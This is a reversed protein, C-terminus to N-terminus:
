ERRHTTKVCTDSHCGPTFACGCPSLVTNEPEDCLAAPATSDNAQHRSFKNCRDRQTVIGAQIGSSPTVELAYPSGMGDAYPSNQVYHESPPVLSQIDSNECVGGFTQSALLNPGFFGSACASSVTIVIVAVVIAARLLSYPSCFRVRPMIGLGRLLFM